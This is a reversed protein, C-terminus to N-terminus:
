LSNCDKDVFIFTSNNPRSISECTNTYTSEYTLQKERTTGSQLSMNLGQLLSQVESKKRAYLVGHQVPYPISQTDKLSHTALKPDALVASLNNNRM